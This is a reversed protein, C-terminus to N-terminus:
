FLNYVSLRPNEPGCRIHLSGCHRGFGRGGDAFSVKTDRVVADFIRFKGWEFVHRELIDLFKVEIVGARAVLFIPLTTVM